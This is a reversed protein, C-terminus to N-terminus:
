NGLLVTRHKEVKVRPLSKTLIDATMEETPVYHIKVEKNEVRERIFHLKTDIHKSRKHMVPNHCMKICSQNDEGIDIPKKMPLGFDELLARLYIAEQVAAAMAQYEAEASSLAVTAQKKVEWSIAGGNGEFKFYYGTTSKRDNLDGSWDADSDGIIDSNSNKLFALRLDITGKLYRLVHKAAKWHSENPKYLFRSLQNVIHLIDPRTHKGIFLLSGVLSRYLKPDVLKQEEDDSKVLKLNVEGPTAVAKCDSMNFQQLVTEIYKKQDVTIKDHTRLIQMGLFWNLAGRDDMKFNENLMSKIENVAEETAGAVVIDDVWILVYSFTENEEKRVFLCYDNRSRKFGEMLLLSTLAEYWNKAAQKLGYISKNLKCVLKQGSNAKKVFGQPQELYIEEEINSHLYASKVDMQGLQLDKQAATALLIRFTEPKCTPAYTYFLDLGEVQAYGKAVYRAKLKDVQGDAGHKVKYVWKGPLVQQDEPENVLTWTNNDMLSNYETQMAKRWNEAQPSNVAENYSKPEQVDEKTTNFTYPLGYREPPRRNRSGRPLPVENENPDGEVEFQNQVVPIAANNEEVGGQVPIKTDEDKSRDDDFDMNPSVLNPNELSITEKASFSQIESERFIVNRAKIVKKSDFEQLIYATSRDDYGIFKAKVSRSDLKRLNIKRKM